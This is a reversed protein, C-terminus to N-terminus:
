RTVSQPILAATQAAILRKSDLFQTDRLAIPFEARSDIVAAGGHTRRLLGQYELESLDRRVTAPSVGLANSFESLSVSEHTALLALIDIMRRSRKGSAAPRSLPEAEV